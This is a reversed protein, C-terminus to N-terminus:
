FVKIIFSIYKFYRIELGKDVIKNQYDFIGIMLSIRYL